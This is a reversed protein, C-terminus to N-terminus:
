EDAEYANVTCAQRPTQADLFADTVKGMNSTWTQQQVARIADDTRLITPKNYFVTKYRKGKLNGRLGPWIVARGARIKHPGLRHRSVASDNPSPNV